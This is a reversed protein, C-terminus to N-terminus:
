HLGRLAFRWCTLLLGVAFLATYAAVFAAMFPSSKPLRNSFEIWKQTIGDYTGTTIERAIVRSAQRVEETTALNSIVRTQTELIHTIADEGDPGKLYQILAQVLSIGIVNVLDEVQPHPHDKDDQFNIETGLGTAGKVIKGAM